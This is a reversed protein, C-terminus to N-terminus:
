GTCALANYKRFNYLHVWANAGLKEGKIVPMAEHDTRPDMAELNSNKVHAWLLMRGAKPTVELGLKNFKTNGGAEVDNFYMFATFVRPGCPMRVQGPIFDHHQKYYQGASYNLVQMYEQHVVDTQTVEAIKQQVALASTSTVCPRQNCWANYSTRYDTFEKAFTGEDVKKGVSSSREFKGELSQMLEGAEDKTIFNDLTVIWPDRNVVTVNYKENIVPDTSIRRFVKNIGGAGLVAKDDPSRACRDAKKAAQAAKKLPKSATAINCAKCSKKCHLLMYKPNKTCEGISEWFVCNRHLDECGAAAKDKIDEFQQREKAKEAAAKKAKALAEKMMATKLVDLPPPPPFAVSAAGSGAGAPGTPGTLWSLLLM